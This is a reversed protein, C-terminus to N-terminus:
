PLAGSLRSRRWAHPTAGIIRRFVRTLHSQDSMGCALAIESLSAPTTLMLTQALEIRRRTVYLHPPIGFSIRFQRCFHSYSLCLFTALDKMRLGTGLNADIHASLRRRQWATLGSPAFPQPTRASQRPVAGNHRHMFALPQAIHQQASEGDGARAPCPAELLSAAVMSLHGSSEDLM